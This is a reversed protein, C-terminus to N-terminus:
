GFAARRRAVAGFQCVPYRRQHGRTSLAMAQSGVVPLRCTGLSTAVVDSEVLAGCGELQRSQEVEAEEPGAM